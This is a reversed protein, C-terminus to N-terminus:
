GIVPSPLRAAVIGGAAEASAPDGNVSSLFIDADLRLLELPEVARVTATRPVDRLLAIEGFFDGPGLERVLRGDVSVDARGRAVVYFREGLEGEAVVVNGPEVGVEVLAQALRELQPAPLPAFFPVKRLLELRDSPPPPISELASLPRWLVLVVVPLLLGALAYAGRGGFATVLLPAVLSGLAMTLLALAEFAGFVRGLVADPAARQMLTVGTVDVLTNGVGVLFLLVLAVTVQPWAAILVLPVGWLILGGAFHRTLRRSGAAGAVVLVGAAAGVGVMGDLWGVAAVDVHLLDVALVVVLVNFLGAVFTQV